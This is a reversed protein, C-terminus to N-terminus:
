GVQFPHLNNLIDLWKFGNGHPVECRSLIEMYRSFFAVHVLYRVYDRMLTENM